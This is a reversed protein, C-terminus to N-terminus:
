FRWSEVLIHWVHDCVFAGVVSFDKAQTKIQSSHKERGMVASYDIVESTHLSTVAAAKWCLGRATCTTPFGMSEFADFPLHTYKCLCAEHWFWGWKLTSCEAPLRCSALLVLNNTQLKHILVYFSKTRNKIESFNLFLDTFTERRERRRTFARHLQTQCSTILSRISRKTATIIM